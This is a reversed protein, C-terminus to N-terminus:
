FRYHLTLGVGGPTDLPLFSLGKDGYTHRRALTKGVVYGIAAGALVDSTFHHDRYIREASVATALAYLVVQIPPPYQDAFVAAFAFVQTAHGSPFSQGFEKFPNYSNGQPDESPRNRGVALKTLHTLGSALLQAEMSVLSAQFLKNGEESKRFLYGGVAFGINLPLVADGAIGIQKFVENGSETRHQQVERQINSDFVMVGGVVGAIGATIFGSELDMRLPATVLYVVDDVVTAGAGKLSHVSFKESDNSHQGDLHLHPGAPSKQPDLNIASTPDTEAACAYDLGHM